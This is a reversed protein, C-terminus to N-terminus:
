ALKQNAWDSFSAVDPGWTAKGDVVGYNGDVFGDKVVAQDAITAWRWGDPSCMPAQFPTLLWIIFLPFVIAGVWISWGLWFLPRFLTVQIQQKQYEMGAVVLVFVTMLTRFLVAQIWFLWIYILARFPRRQKCAKIFLMIGSTSLLHRLNRNPRTHKSKCLGELSLNWTVYDLALLYFVNQILLVLHIGFRLVPQGLSTGSQVRHNMFLYALISPLELALLGFWVGKLKEGMQLGPAHRKALVIKEHEPRGLFKAVQKHSAISGGHHLVADLYPRYRELLKEDHLKRLLNWPMIGWLLLSGFICVGHLIAPAVLWIFRRNIAVLHRQTDNAQTQYDNFSAALQVSAISLATGWRLLAYSLMAGFDKLSVERTWLRRFFHLFEFNAACLNRALQVPERHRRPDGLAAYSVRKWCKDILVENFITAPLALVFSIVIVGLVKKAPVVDDPGLLFILALSSLDLSIWVSVLLFPTAFDFCSRRQKRIITPQPPSFQAPTYHQTASPHFPHGNLQFSPNCSPSQYGLHPAGPFAPIQAQYQPAM